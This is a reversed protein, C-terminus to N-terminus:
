AAHEASAIEGGSAAAVAAEPEAAERRARILVCGLIAGALAVAASLRMAGTLGEIFADRAAESAAGAQGPEL